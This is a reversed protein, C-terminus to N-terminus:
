FCLLFKVVSIIAIEFPRVSLGFFNNGYRKFILGVDFGRIVEVTM